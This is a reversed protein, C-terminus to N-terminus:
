KLSNREIRHVARLRVQCGSRNASTCVIRARGPMWRPNQPERALRRLGTDTLEDCTYLDRVLRFQMPNRMFCFARSTMAVACTGGGGGNYWPFRSNRM